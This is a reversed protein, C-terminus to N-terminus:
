NQKNIQSHHTKTAAQPIKVTAHQSLQGMAHPIKIEWGPILGSHRANSPENKVVPDCPFDQSPLHICICVYMSLKAYLKLANISRTSDYASEM